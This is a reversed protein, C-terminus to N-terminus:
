GGLRKLLQALYDVATMAAAKRKEEKIKETEAQYTKLTDREYKVDREVKKLAEVAHTRERYISKIELKLHEVRRELTNIEQELEAKERKKKWM